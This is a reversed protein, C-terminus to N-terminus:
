AMQIFGVAQQNQIKVDMELWAVIGVAHQTAFRENLVQVSDEVTKVALAEAPNIYWVAKKGTALAECQDSTYVPKGLLRGAFGNEISANLEYNSTGALVKKVATWTAPAMVWIAGSQFAGKLMDQVSILENVTLANASAATVKQSAAVTSLGTIAGNTGVITEKDNFEAIAKSMKGIVFNVLDIDSANILSRSVKCLVGALFGDLEVALLKTDKAQLDVFETAYAVAINDNASDVYPIAVKGKIDFHTSMRFLPSLDKVQDIIKKIITKPIVAGNPAKEINDDARQRIINAFARTEIEEVSEQEKARKQEPTSEPEAQLNRAADIARLSNDVRGIEAEIEKFRSDEEETFARGENEATARLSVMEDVLEQRKEMLKKKYM